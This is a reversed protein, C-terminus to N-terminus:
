KWQAGHGKPDDVERREALAEGAGDRTGLSRDGAGGFHVRKEIVIGNDRDAHAAALVADRARQGCGTVEVHDSVGPRADEHM